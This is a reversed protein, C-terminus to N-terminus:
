NIKFLSALLYINTYRNVKVKITQSMKYHLVTINSTFDDIKCRNVSSFALPLNSPIEDPISYGVTPKKDPLYRFSSCRGESARFTGLELGVTPM